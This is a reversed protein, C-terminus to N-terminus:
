NFYPRCPIIEVHNFAWGEVIGEDDWCIFIADTAKVTIKPKNCRNEEHLPSTLFSKNNGRYGISVTENM